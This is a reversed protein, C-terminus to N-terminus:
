GYKGAQENRGTRLRRGQKLADERVTLQPDDRAVARVGVVEAAMPRFARGVLERAAKGFAEANGQAEVRDPGAFRGNGLNRGPPGVECGGAQRRADFQRGARLEAGAVLQDALVQDVATAADPRGAHDVGCATQTMGFGPNAVVYVEGSETFSGTDEVARDLWKRLYRASVAVDTALQHEFGTSLEEARMPKLDPDVSGPLRYDFPGRIRGRITGIKLEGPLLTDLRAVGWRMGPETSAVWLVTACTLAAVAALAIALRLPWRRPRTRPDRATM